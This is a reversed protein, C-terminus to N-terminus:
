LFSLLLIACIVGVIVALVVTGFSLSKPGRLEDPSVPQAGSLDGAQGAGSDRYFRFTDAASPSLKEAIREAQEKSLGCALTLCPNAKLLAMLQEDSQRLAERLADFAGQPTDFLEYMAPNTHTIEGLANTALIGEALGDLVQRLRNREVTLARVTDGLADALDLLPERVARVYWDHNAQFFERNNCFRIATFYSFTEETFGAFMSNRKRRRASNKACAGRAGCNM